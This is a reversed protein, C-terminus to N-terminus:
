DAGFRQALWLIPDTMDEELQGDKRKVTRLLKEIGPLLTPFIHEELYKAPETVDRADKSFFPFMTTAQNGGMAEETMDGILSETMSLSRDCGPREDDGNDSAVDNGAMGGSADNSTPSWSAGAVRPHQSSSTAAPAADEEGFEEGEEHTSFGYSTHSSPIRGGPGGGPLSDLPPSSRRASQGYPRKEQSQPRSSPKSRTESDETSPSSTILFASPNGTSFLPTHLCILVLMGAIM